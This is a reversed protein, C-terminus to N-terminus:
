KRILLFVTHLEILRDDADHRVPQPGILSINPGDYIAGANPFYAKDLVYAGVQEDDSAAPIDNRINAKDRIYEETLRPVAAYHVVFGEVFQPFPVRYSYRVIRKIAATQTSVERMDALALRTTEVASSLTRREHMLVPGAMLLAALFAMAVAALRARINWTQAFLCGAVVCAPLTASVGATYHTEYHKLVSLAAFLAALGAGIGMIAVSHRQRDRFGTVLGATYLAAGAILALPVAYAHDGPIGMVARRIGEESVVVQSGTGYLGSGLIVNRHFRLLYIFAEWGIVFYGAAVVVGVFTFFSLAILASSRRWGIGCFFAKWFIASVLALPVYVYALKNLYAFAGVFGALAVVKPDIQADFALRVLTVLFLGNILLAVPELGTTVFCEITAPTSVLWLLIAVVTAGVPIMRLATRAFVYVGLSGVLAAVYISAKHYVEVHDFVERFFPQEGGTAVPYGSLALALWSMLYFPVGPHSNMGEAKYFRLDGLRYAMNLADALGLPEYDTSSWFGIPYFHFLAPAICFFGAALLLSWGLSRRTGANM